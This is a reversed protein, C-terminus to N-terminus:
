QHVNYIFNDGNLMVAGRTFGSPIKIRKRTPVIVQGAPSGFVLGEGSMWVAYPTDGEVGLVAPDVLDSMASYEMAPSEMVTKREFNDPDSGAVFYTLKEDSVYIGGAVPRVM